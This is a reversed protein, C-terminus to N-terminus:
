TTSRRTEMDEAYDADCYGILSHGNGGTNHDLQGLTLVKDITGKLYVLTRKATKPHQESPNSSFRSLYGVAFVIDPRASMASWMLSGVIQQYFTKRNKDEKITNDQRRMIADYIPTTATKVDQM